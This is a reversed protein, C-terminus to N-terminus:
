LLTEPLSFSCVAPDFPNAKNRFQILFQAWKDNQQLEVLCTNGEQRKVSGRQLLRFLAWEGRASTEGNIGNLDGTELVALDTQGAATPWTFGAGQVPGHWYKLTKGAHSLSVQKLTADLAYPEMLFSIGLERGSMFFADQVRNARQLQVIAQSSVPLTRGMIGRLTGTRTIFPRLYTDHFSDLVGGGRFFAAFDDLNVDKDAHVNFPYSARLNKNYVSIVQDQYARNVSNAGIQLMERLGGSAITGYWRRAPAPLHEVSSELRRLTDNKEETIELLSAFVAQEKNDAGLLRAFYEGAAAVNDNVAKLAPNPNGDETLLGEFAVFYQRVAIADRQAERWAKRKMEEAGDSAKNVLTKAVKNGVKGGLKQQAKRKTEDEIAAVAADPEVDEQIFSTNARLERLVLVTPPTGATLQEALNRADAMTSPTRVQLAQMGQSWHRIYDRFYLRRVEKQVKDV